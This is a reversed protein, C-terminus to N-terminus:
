VVTWAGVTSATTAASARDFGSIPTSTKRAGVPSTAARMAASSRSPPMRASTRHSLSGSEISDYAERSRSRAQDGDPAAAMSGAYTASVYQPVRIRLMTMTVPLSTSGRGDDHSSRVFSRYRSM